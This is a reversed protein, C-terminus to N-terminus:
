SSNMGGHRLHMSRSVAFEEGSLEFAEVTVFEEVTETTVIEEVSSFVSAVSSFAHNSSNYTIPM